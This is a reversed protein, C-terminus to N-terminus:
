TGDDYGSNKTDVRMFILLLNSDGMAAPSFTLQGEHKYFYETRYTDGGHYFPIFSKGTTHTTQSTPPGILAVVESMPMGMKLKAFKSGPAPTGSYHEARLEAKTKPPTTSQTNSPASTACGVLVTLILAASTSLITRMMMGEYKDM